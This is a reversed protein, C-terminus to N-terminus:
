VSLHEILEQTEHTILGDEIRTDAGPAPWTVSVVEKEEQAAGEVEGRQRCVRRCPRAQAHSTSCKPSIEQM